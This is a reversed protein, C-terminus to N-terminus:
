IVEPHGSPLHPQSLGHETAAGTAGTTYSDTDYNVGGAWTERSGKGHVGSQVYTAGSIEVGDGEIRVVGASKLYINGGELHLGSRKIHVTQGQDDYLAVEGEVLAKLRYRRDDIAIIVSHNRNGGLALLIAEAGPHPHSTFGYDQFREVGDHVEGALATVQVEQLKKGDDVASLVARGIMLLVRRRLPATLKGVIRAIDVM